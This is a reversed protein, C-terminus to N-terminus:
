GGVGLTIMLSYAAFGKLKSSLTSTSSASEIAASM